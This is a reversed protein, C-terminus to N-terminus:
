TSELCHRWYAQTALSHVRDKDIPMWTVRLVVEAVVYWKLDISGASEKPTYRIFSLLPLQSEDKEQYWSIVWKELQVELLLKKSKKLEEILTEDNLMENEKHTLSETFTSDESLMEATWFSKPFQRINNGPIDLGKLGANTSPSLILEISFSGNVSSVGGVLIFFYLDDKSKKAFVIPTNGSIDEMYHYGLREVVPTIINVIAQRKLKM